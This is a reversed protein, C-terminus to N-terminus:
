KDENRKDVLIVLSMKIFNMGDNKSVLTFKDILVVPRSREYENVLKLFKVYSGRCSVEVVSKRLLQCDKIQTLKGSAKQKTRFDYLGVRGAIDGILYTCENAMSSAAVFTSLTNAVNRQEDQLRKVNEDSTYVRMRKLEASIKEVQIVKRKAAQRIPFVVSFYALGLVAISVIWMVVLKVFKNKVCVDM